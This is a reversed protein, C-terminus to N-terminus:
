AKPRSHIMKANSGHISPGTTTSSSDNASASRPTSPVRITNAWRNTTAITSHAIRRPIRSDRIQLSALTADAILKAPNRSSSRRGNRPAISKRM